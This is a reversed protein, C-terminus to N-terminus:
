SFNRGLMSGLVSSFRSNLELLSRSREAQQHSANLKVQYSYRQHSCVQDIAFFSVAYLDGKALGPTVSLLLVDEM